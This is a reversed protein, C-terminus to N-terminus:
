IGGLDSVIQLLSTAVRTHTQGVNTMTLLTQTIVLREETGEAWAWDSRYALRETHSVPSAFERTRPPEIRFPDDIITVNDIAFAIVNFGFHDGLEASARSM